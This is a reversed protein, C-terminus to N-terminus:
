KRNAVVASRGAVWTLFAWVLNFLATTNLSLSLQNYIEVESM